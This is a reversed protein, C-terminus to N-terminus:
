VRSLKFVEKFIDVGANEFVNKEVRDISEVPPFSLDYKGSSRILQSINM